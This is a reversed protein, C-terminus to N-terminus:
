NTFRYRAVKRRRAAAAEIESILCLVANVVRDDDAPHKHVSNLLTIVLLRDDLTLSLANSGQQASHFLIGKTLPQFVLSLM